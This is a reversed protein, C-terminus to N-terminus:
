RQVCRFELAVAAARGFGPNTEEYKLTEVAQNEKACFDNAKSNSNVRNRPCMM